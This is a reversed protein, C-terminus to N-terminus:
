LAIPTSWGVDTLFSNNWFPKLLHYFLRGSIVAAASVSIAKICDQYSTKKVCALRPGDAPLVTKMHDRFSICKTNEHESVACWKVTKDPVALCLGAPSFAAAYLVWERHWPLSRLVKNLTKTSM